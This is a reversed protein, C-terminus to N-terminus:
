RTAVLIILPLTNSDKDLMQHHLKAFDAQEISRSNTNNNCPVGRFLLIRPVPKRLLFIAPPAALIM